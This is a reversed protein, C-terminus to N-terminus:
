NTKKYAADVKNYQRQAEKTIAPYEAESKEANSFYAPLALSILILLSVKIIKM